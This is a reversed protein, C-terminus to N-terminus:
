ARGSRRRSRRSPSPWRPSSAPSRAPPPRSGTASRCPERARTRFEARHAILYGAVLGAAAAEEVDVGKVLHLVSSGVLLAVAVRHARLQGRRVGRALALLGLGPLTVLATATQPVALPVLRLLAILRGELPPTIASGLDLLGAAAIM